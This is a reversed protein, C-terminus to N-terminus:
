VSRTHSRAYCSSTFTPTPRTIEPLPATQQWSPGRPLTHKEDKTNTRDNACAIWQSNCQLDDRPAELHQIWPFKWVCVPVSTWRVVGPMCRYRHITLNTLRAVCRIYLSIYQTHWIYIYIYIYIYIAHEHYTHIADRWWGWWVTHNFSMYLSIRQANHKNSKYQIMNNM